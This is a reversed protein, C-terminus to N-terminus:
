QLHYLSEGRFTGLAAASERADQQGLDVISDRPQVIGGGFRSAGLTKSVAQPAQALM